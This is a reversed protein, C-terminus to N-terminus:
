TMTGKTGLECSDKGSNWDFGQQTEHEMAEWSRDELDAIERTLTERAKEALGNLTKLNASHFVHSWGVPLTYIHTSVEHWTAFNGSLSGSIACDVVGNQLAPVVENFAMTVGTGGVAEVFEASSRNSTRVKLAKLDDLGGIPRNCFIVQAP